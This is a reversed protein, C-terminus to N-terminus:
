LVKREASRRPPGRRERRDEHVAESMEPMIKASRGLFERKEIDRVPSSSKQLNQEFNRQDIEYGRIPSGNVPPHVDKIMM